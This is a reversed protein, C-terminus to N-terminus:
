CFTSAHVWHTSKLSKFNEKRKHLFYFCLNLARSVRLTRKERTRLTSAHVWHTSKLSKVNDKRLNLLYFRLNLARLPNLCIKYLRFVNKGKLLCFRPSDLSRPPVWSGVHASVLVVRRLLLRARPSVVLAAAACFCFTLPTRQVSIDVITWM